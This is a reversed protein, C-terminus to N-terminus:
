YMCDPQGFGISPPRSVRSWKVWCRPISSIPPKEFESALDADILKSYEELTRFRSSFVASSAALSSLGYTVGRGRAETKITEASIAQLIEAISLMSVRDLKALSGAVAHRLEKLVTSRIVDETVFRFYEEVTRLGELTRNANADLIRYLASTAISM